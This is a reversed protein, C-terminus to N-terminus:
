TVSRPQSQSLSVMQAPGPPQRPRQVTPRTVAALLENVCTTEPSLDTPWKCKPNTFICFISSGPKWGGERSLSELSGELQVMRCKSINPFHGRSELHGKAKCLGPPRDVLKQTAGPATVQAPKSEGVRLHKNLM